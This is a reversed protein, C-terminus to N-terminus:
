AAELVQARHQGLLAIADRAYQRFEEKLFEPEREWDPVEEQADYFTRAVHEIQQHLNDM